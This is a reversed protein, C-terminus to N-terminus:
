KSSNIIINVITDMENLIDDSLVNIELPKLGLEDAIPKVADIPYESQYILVKIHNNKVSDSLTMLASSTTNKGENEISIQNLGYDRALYALAPHYIVFSHPVGKSFLQSYNDQRSRISLILKQLNTKYRVSDPYAECIATGINNAIKELEYPSLWIHPDVGVSHEKHGSHNHSGKIFNVGKSADFAMVTKKDLREVIEHEFELTGIYFFLKSSNLEAMQRPTPSYSEPSSGPPVLIDIDFDDDTIASVIGSLPKISVAITQRKASSAARESCSTFAPVSLLSFFLLLLSANRTM